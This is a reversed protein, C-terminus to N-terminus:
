RPAPHAELLRVLTHLVRNAPTAVGLAQGRRLVYGNLHDIESPKGRMLDQATSSYQSPMTQAIREVAAWTDGPIQVGDAQAVALCENVVDRMVDQVGQGQVLQGYPLRSIASMANYACNLILKAWLAGVVNDSVQAPVGAQALTALVTDSGRFPGFVLEGRGHHKVHGPGAMETAVYVVAPVVPRGLVQALRTANDVGNQLSFVLTRDALYPLMGQGASETDTSKVCFLVWDAGQVGEPGTCAQVPVHECFTQTDLLLGKAQMAETHAPRGVLTVEHGARALMGGYYCGVAGAGMVAIKM